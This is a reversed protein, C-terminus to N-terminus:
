RIRRLLLQRVEAVEEGPKSLARLRLTGKEKPLTIEGLSVPKFDKEPGENAQYRLYTESVIPSENPETITGIVEADQFTLALKTGAVDPGSDYFVIVEFTGAKALEANWHIEDKENKWNLFYSSNPHRSSRQIEGTATADRIPLQTYEMGPDGILFPREDEKPQPPLQSMINDLQEQLQAKHQPYIESLDRLQGLDRDIEYLMGEGMLRFRDNRISTKARWQNFIIREQLEPTAAKDGQLFVSSLDKGDIPNNTTLEVGALGALTPLLDLGSSLTRALSGAPIKEPWRVLLPSRVGGEEHRGKKGAMGGNWRWGNPGNDCFYLVITNEEQGSEELYDLVRGVNDDINECMALAALAHNPGFKPEKTPQQTLKKDKFRNWYKDPVIMPSHPTPIPIYTFFPKGESTKMFEIAKSVTDDVIFGEGKVMNGNHDLWPDVYNGWHGSCFGYFEDFGRGLPHYPYQMGNHWKGFAGTRYGADSFVNAITTEDLNLREAGQSVGSVGSRSHYRATLFEARTPSCVPQVYFREMVLGDRSLSDIRPTKLDQNGHLSLDGWGQDDTLFVVINPKEAQLSTLFSLFLPLLLSCTFNIKPMALSATYFFAGGSVYNARFYDPLNQPM